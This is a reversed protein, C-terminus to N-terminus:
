VLVAVALRWDFAFMAVAITAPTAIGVVLPTLLHAFLGGVSMTGGTVIRSLRGVTEGSFWGLPLGVVHDGVRRHMTTLVTLAVEFGKMAQVYHAVCTVAAAVAMAALWWLAGGPDGQLLHQLVPVLLVMSLGQAVGYAVVWTLYVRVPRRHEPGLITVLDAIM